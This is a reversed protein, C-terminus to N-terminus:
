AVIFVRFGECVITRMIKGLELVRSNHFNELKVKSPDKALVVSTSEQRRRQKQKAPTTEFEHPSHSKSVIKSMMM